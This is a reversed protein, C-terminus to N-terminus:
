LYEIHKYNYRQFVNVGYTNGSAQEYREAITDLPIHNFLCHGLLSVFRANSTEIAALISPVDICKVRDKIEPVTDIESIESIYMGSWLGHLNNAKAFDSAYCWIGICIKSRLMDAIDQAIICGTRTTDFLGYQCGHGLMMVRDCINLLSILDNKSIDYNVVITDPLDKYIEKLFETSDDQPHIILTIM